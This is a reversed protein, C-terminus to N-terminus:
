PQNYYEKTLELEHNLTFFDAFREAAQSGNELEPIQNDRLVNGYKQLQFRDYSSLDEIPKASDQQIIQM